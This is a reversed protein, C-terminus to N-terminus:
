PFQSRVCRSHAFVETIPYPQTSDGVSEQLNVVKWTPIVIMTKHLSLLYNTGKESVNVCKRGFLHDITWSILMKDSQEILIIYQIVYFSITLSMSLLKQHWINMIAKPNSFDLGRKTWMLTGFVVFCFIHTIAIKILRFLCLYCVYCRWYFDGLFSLTQHLAELKVVLIVLM